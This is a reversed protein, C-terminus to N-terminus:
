EVGSEAYAYAIHNHISEYSDCQASFWTAGELHALALYTDRVVDEVFKPNDYSAETIVKEDPRKLVPFIEASGQAELLPILEELWIMLGPRSRLRARLMARQSHAGRESIERSCPCLTLVPVDAGLTFVYGADSLEGEFSCDYDLQSVLGSAPAAKALFYKFTLLMRARPAHFVERLETLIDEMEAGSVAHRSWRNLIEVFRSMHTGREYHPLAVSADIQGLVRAMGGDQERIMVPLHLDKIGVHALNVGRTDNESAVDRM